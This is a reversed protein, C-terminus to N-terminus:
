NLILVGFYTRLLVDFLNLIVAYTWNLKIRLIAITMFEKSKWTHLCMKVTETCFMFITGEFAKCISILAAWTQKICDNKRLNTDDLIGCWKWLERQGMQLVHIKRQLLPLIISPLAMKSIVYSSAIKLHKSSRKTWGDRGFNSSLFNNFEKQKYHNIIHLGYTFNAHKLQKKFVIYNFM